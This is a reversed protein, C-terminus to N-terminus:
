GRLVQGEGVIRVTLPRDLRLSGDDLLRSATAQGSATGTAGPTPSASERTHVQFSSSGL